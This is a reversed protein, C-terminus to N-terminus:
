TRLITVTSAVASSGESGPFVGIIENFGKPLRGLDIVAVGSELTGTVSRGKFFVTVSGQPQRASKSSVRVTVVAPKNGSVVRSRPVITIKSQWRVDQAGSLSTVVEAGQTARVRVALAHGQDGTAVTYTRLTAGPIPEGDSLWQYAYAIDDASGGVAPKWTGQTASLPQGVDPTGTVTPASTNVLTPSGAILDHAVVDTFSASGVALLRVNAESLDFPARAALSYVDDVFLEIMDGEILIRVDLEGELEGPRVPTSAFDVWGGAGTSDYRLRLLGDQKDLTVEVGLPGAIGEGILLGARPTGTAMHVTFSLDLSDASIPVVATAFGGGSYTAAQGSVTWGTGQGSISGSGGSPWRESGRLLGAVDSALKVDLTGDSRASLERPFSLHGGWYNGQSDKPIWGLFLTRDGDSYVQGAAIDEGDIFHETKSAWDVEDISAGADGIFYSARGVHHITQRAFSTILYWRDGLKFFQTVEPEIGNAAPVGTNPYRVLETQTGWSDPTTGTSTTLAVSVDMGSGIGWNQNTRYATSVMRYKSVDPDWFVYPDRAGAPFLTNNNPIRYSSPAEQWTTLDTSESSRMEGGNGYWTRYTAGDKIVGLAYYNQAPAAGTHTLATPTWNVLDTSTALEPSFSGDDKLSFLYHTGDIYVPHVDGIYSPDPRYHVLSSAEEAHSALPSTAAAATVLAGVAVAALTKRTAFM